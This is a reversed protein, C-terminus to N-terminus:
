SVRVKPNLAVYIMDVVLNALVTAIAFFLVIAQIAPLDAATAARAIYQGLGPVSFVVEVIVSGGILLDVQLGLITVSPILSNKLAHKTLVAHPSAGKAWATRTYDSDFTEILSARMTRALRAAPNAALAIAPMVMAQAWRLPSESFPVYGVAPLWGLNIAFVVILVIAIIFAPVAMGASTLALVFRDAFGGRRVAALVGLGFGVPVAIVFAAIGLSVTAELRSVIEEVVSEGSLLSTGLDLRMAATLWEWYAVHFPADLNLEERLREVQSISANEGGALTMAPDGPLLLYLGQMLITVALLVLPIMAIRKMAFLFM